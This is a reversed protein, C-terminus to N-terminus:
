TGLVRYTLSEVNDWIFKPADTGLSTVSDQPYQLVWNNGTYTMKCISWGAKATPTGKAAKGFYENNSSDKDYAYSFNTSYNSM